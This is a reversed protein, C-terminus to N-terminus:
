WQQLMLGSGSLCALALLLWTYFAYGASGQRHCKTNTLCVGTGISFVYGLLSTSMLMMSFVATFPGITFLRRVLELALVCWIGYCDRYFNGLMEKVPFVPVEGTRVHRILPDITIKALPVVLFLSVLRYVGGLTQLLFFGSFVLGVFLNRRRMGASVDM